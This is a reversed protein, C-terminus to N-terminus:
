DAKNAYRCVSSHLTGNRALPFHNRTASFEQGRHRRAQSSRPDTPSFVIPFTWQFREGIDKSAHGMPNDPSVNVVRSQGTKRNFRTLLGGYSGAYFIDPNKPDNAIYGSEGGGVSYFVTDASGGSGGPGGSRPQSSVCATSNDQQAGCVHYPVDYTTTVHYFQATPYDLSTWTEGGNVTVTGGGDNAAIFRKPNAPDIWMDHNDGHPPRLQTKWTKGGDTSKWFQVNQGYVTDKEKPDATIHTYYFARQRLNRDESVKKWKAGADDSVFSGGDEAEVQAYVRNSDAPSVSIGVKGIMQTPMGPNRTIEKWTDGGDTSKFIGSGPGGSSMMHSVRYAEWLAAYVVNPNNPDISLDIAGTKDDRFLVKQWTAGGDKTRFVGREPNPGAVHGLVAVYAVDPNAPHLRIKSVTQSDALGLHKWTKGGDTTKYVGDGQAINGRLCAEGMGIYVIDPNTAAVAVAGVSSTALQGDTVPRWTTGGDTTKWLGGGTAGFYYELPRSTSGAVAISRGGRLPGLSRWRLAGFPGAQEGVSANPGGRQARVVTYDTAALAVVSLVALLRVSRPVRPMSTSRGPSNPRVPAM